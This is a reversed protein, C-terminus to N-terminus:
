THFKPSGKQPKRMELIGLESKTALTVEHEEKQNKPTFIYSSKKTVREFDRQKEEKELAKLCHKKTNQAINM